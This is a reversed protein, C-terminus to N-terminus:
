GVDRQRVRRPATALPQRTGTVPSRITTYGLNLEAEHVKAQATYVAARSADFEGQARDLDAESLANQQALPKVRELNAKANVLRAQQSQVEGQVAELQAQFPRPDLQFLLQGQKVLDGEHYAIKDLYGSVRAVINVQQSSETQAVFSLTYPITQPEVTIVSVAPAPRQSPPAEESCGSVLAATLIRAIVISSLPSRTMTKAKYGRPFGIPATSVTAPSGMETLSGNNLTPETTDGRLFPRAVKRSSRSRRPGRRPCAGVVGDAERWGEEPLLPLFIEGRRKLSPYARQLASSPGWSAPIQGRFRAPLRCAVHILGRLEAGRFDNLPGRGARSAVPHNSAVSLLM